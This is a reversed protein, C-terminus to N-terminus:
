IPKTMFDAVMWKTPCWKITLEKIKVQDMVFFYQINIHRM